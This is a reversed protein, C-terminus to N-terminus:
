ASRAAIDRQRARYAAVNMRNGCTEPNCYRRSRNRSMDVYVRRCGPAECTRLVESGRDRVAVSLAVAAEAAMRSVLPASSSTFHFHWAEGDHNTLQPQARSERLLRNLAAVVADLDTLTFVAALRSRLRRVAALDSATVALAYSDSHDDLFAELATETALGDIGIVAPDTNVLDMAARVLM